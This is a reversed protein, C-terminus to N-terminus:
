FVREKFVTFRLSEIATIHAIRDGRYWPTALKERYRKFFVRLRERPATAQIQGLLSRLPAAGIPGSWAFSVSEMFPYM